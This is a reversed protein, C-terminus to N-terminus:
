HHATCHTSQPPQGPDAGSGMKPVAAVPMTLPRCSGSRVLVIASQQAICFGLLVTHSNFTVLGPACPCPPIWGNMIGEFGDAGSDTHGGDRGCAHSSIRAKLVFVRDDCQVNSPVYAPIHVLARLRSFSPCRASRTPGTGQKKRHSTRSRM